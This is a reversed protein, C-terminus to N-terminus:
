PPSSATRSLLTAAKDPESLYVLGCLLSQLLMMSRRLLAVVVAQEYDVGLGVAMAVFSGEMLGIGNISLPLLAAIGAAAAILACMSFSVPQGAQSFLWFVISVSVSQFALSLIAQRLWEWRAARLRGLNHEVADVAKLHRVKNVLPKFLGLFLAALGLAAGIVGLCYIGLYTKAIQSGLNWLAGAAGMTLLALIGLVRDVLIASVARSRYGDQPVTRYVRYADGGISTPLFNNLFYGTCVTRLLYGYPYALAHMRLAQSWKWASLIIEGAMAVFVPPLTWWRLRHLLDSLSSFDVKRLLIYLLIGAVIFKLARKM